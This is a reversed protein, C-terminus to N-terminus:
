CLRWRARLGDIPGLPVGCGIIHDDGRRIASSLHTNGAEMERHLRVVIWQRNRLGEHCTFGWVRGRDCVAINDSSPIYCRQRTPARVDTAGSHDFCAHRLVYRAGFLHTTKNLQNLDASRAVPQRAGVTAPHARGRGLWVWSRARARAQARAWAKGST